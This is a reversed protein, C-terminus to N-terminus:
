ERAKGTRAFPGVPGLRGNPALISKTRQTLLLARRAWHHFFHTANRM